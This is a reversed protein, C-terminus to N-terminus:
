ANVADKFNKSPTFKPKHKGTTSSTFRTFTGFGPIAVKDNNVVATEITSFITRIADEIQGKNAGAFAEHLELAEVLSKHNLRNSM